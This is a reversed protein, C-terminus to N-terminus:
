RRRRSPPLGRCRPGGPARRPPSGARFQRRGGDHRAVTSGHRDLADRRKQVLSRLRVVRDVPDGIAGIRVPRRPVRLPQERQRLQWVQEAPSRDAAVQHVGQHVEFPRDTGVLAPLGAVGRVEDLPEPRRNRRGFRGGGAAWCGGPSRDDVGGNGASPQAVPALDPLDVDVPQDRLRVLRGYTARSSASPLASLVAVRRGCRCGAGMSRRRRCRGHGRTTCRPLARHVVGARNRTRRCGPAIALCARGVGRARSCGASWDARRAYGPGCGSRRGNAVPPHSCRSRVPAM